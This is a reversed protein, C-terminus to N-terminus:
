VSMYCYCTLIAKTYRKFPAILLEIQAYHQKTPQNPQGKRSQENDSWCNVMDIDKGDVGKEIARTHLTRRWMQNSHYREVIYRIHPPFSTPDRDFFNHLTAVLMTDMDSSHLLNGNIDSIAPGTKFGLLQKQKLLRDVIQKTVELGSSTKNSCPILHPRSTKEEKLKGLLAVIVYTRDNRDWNQHAGHLDFLFVENGRLSLAYSVVAYTIFVM